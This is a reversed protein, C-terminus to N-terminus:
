HEVMFLVPRHCRPIFAPQRASRRWKAPDHREEGHRQQDDTDPLEFCLAAADGNLVGGNARRGNGKIRKLAGLGCRKDDHGMAKGTRARQHLGIRKGQRAGAIDDGGEIELAMAAIRHRHRTIDVRDLSRGLKKDVFRQLHHLGAECPRLCITLGGNKAM